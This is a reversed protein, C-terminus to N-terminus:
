TTIRPPVNGSAFRTFCDYIVFLIFMYICLIDFFGVVCYVCTYYIYIYINSVSMFIDVYLVDWQYKVKYPVTDHETKFFTESQDGLPGGEALEM